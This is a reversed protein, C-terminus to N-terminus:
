FPIEDDDHANASAPSSAEGADSPPEGGGRAGDLTTLEGRYQSLLIETTHKEQGDRDTWKRLAGRVEALLAIIAVTEAPM